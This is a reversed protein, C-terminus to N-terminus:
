PTVGPALASNVGSLLQNLLLQQLAGADRTLLARAVEIAFKQEPTVGNQAAAFDLAWVAVDRRNINQKALDALSSSSNSSNGSSNGNSTGSSLATLVNRLVQLEGTNLNLGTANGAAASSTDATAPQANSSSAAFDSAGICGSAFGLLATYSLGAALMRMAVTNM